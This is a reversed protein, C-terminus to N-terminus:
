MERQSPASPGVKLIPGLRAVLGSLYPLLGRLEAIQSMMHVIRAVASQLTLLRETPQDTGGYTVITAPMLSAWSRQAKSRRASSKPAAQRDLEKLHMITGLPTDNHM